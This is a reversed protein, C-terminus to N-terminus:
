YSASNAWRDLGSKPCSQGSSRRTPLRAALGQYRCLRRQKQWPCQLRYAGDSGTEIISAVAVLVLQCAARINPGPRAAGWHRLPQEVLLLETDQSLRAPVRIM